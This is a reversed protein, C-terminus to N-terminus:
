ILPIENRNETNTNTYYIYSLIPNDNIKRQSLFQISKLSKSNNFSELSHSHYICLKYVDDDIAKNLEYFDHGVQRQGVMRFKTSIHRLTM